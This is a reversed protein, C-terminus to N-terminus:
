NDRADSGRHRWAPCAGAIDPKPIDPAANAPWSHRSRTLPAKPKPAHRPDGPASDAAISGTLSIARAPETGLGLLRFFAGKIELPNRCNLSINQAWDAWKEQRTITLPRRLRNGRFGKGGVSNEGDAERIYSLACKKIAGSSTPLPCNGGRPHPTRAVTSLPAGRAQTIVLGNSAGM